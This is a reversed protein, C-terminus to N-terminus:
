ANEGRMMGAYSLGLGRRACEELVHGTMRIRDDTVPRSGDELWRGVMMASNKLHEDDMDEVPIAKGDSAIWCPRGHDSCPNCAFCTATASALDRRACTSGCGICADPRLRPSHAFPEATRVLAGSYRRFHRMHQLVGEGDLDVVAKRAAKAHWAAAKELRETNKPERVRSLRPDWYSEHPDHHIHGTSATRTTGEPLFDPTADAVFKKGRRAPMLLRMAGALLGSIMRLILM